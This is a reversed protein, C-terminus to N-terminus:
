DRPDRDEDYRGEFESDALIEKDMELKRLLRNIEAEGVPGSVIVRYSAQKSLMGSQLVREHVGMALGSQMSGHLSADKKAKEERPFPMMQNIMEDLTPNFASSAPAIEQEAGTSDFTGVQANVLEKSELYVRLLKEASDDRFNSKILHWKLTDPSAEGKARLIAFAAPAEFARILAEKRESSEAPANLITIADDTVKVDDGRGELLGYARLAALIGLSRGNISTYGLPKIASLRPMKSRGERQYVVRISDIAEGLAIQPFNPSRDAM